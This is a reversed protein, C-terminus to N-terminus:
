KKHKSNHKRNNHNELYRIAAQLTEISDNFLGLGHNCKSCLLGRIKRSGHEHDVHPSRIFPSGCVACKENQNLLMESYESVSLGYRLRRMIAAVKDPNNRKWASVQVKIKERNRLYRARRAAKVKAPNRAVWAANSIRKKERNV